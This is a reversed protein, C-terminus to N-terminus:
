VFYSSEIGALYSPSWTAFHATNRKPRINNVKYIRDKYDRWCKRALELDYSETDVRYLKMFMRIAGLENGTIAIQGKVFFIFQQQFYKEFWESILEKSAATVTYHKIATPLLIRLETASIPDEKPKIQRYPLKEANMLITKGLFSNLHVRIYDEGPLGFEQMIFEKIHKRV